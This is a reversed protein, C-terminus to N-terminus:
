SDGWNQLSKSACFSGHGCVFGARQISPEVVELHEIKGGGRIYGQAVVVAGAVLGAEGVDPGLEVSAAVGTLVFDKM